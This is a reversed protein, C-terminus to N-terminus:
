PQFEEFEKSDLDSQIAKCNDWLRSLVPPLDPPKNAPVSCQALSKLFEECASHLDWIVEEFSLM